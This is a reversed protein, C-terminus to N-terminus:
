LLRRADLDGLNLAHALRQAIPQLQHFGPEGGAARVLKLELRRLRLEARTFQGQEVGFHLARLGGAQQLVRQM